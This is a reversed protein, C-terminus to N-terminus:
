GKEEQKTEGEPATNSYDDLSFERCGKFGVPDSLYARIAGFMQEMEDVSYTLRPSSGNKNAIHLLMRGDDIPWIHIADDPFARTFRSVAM